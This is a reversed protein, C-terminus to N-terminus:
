ATGNLSDPQNGPLRWNTAPEPFPCFRQCFENDQEIHFLLPVHRWDIASAGTNEPMAGTIRELRM